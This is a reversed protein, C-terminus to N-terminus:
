NVGIAPWSQPSRVLSAILSSIDKHNCFPLLCQLAVISRAEKQASMREKEKPTVPTPSAHISSCLVIATLQSKLPASYWCPPTSHVKGEKSRREECLSAM